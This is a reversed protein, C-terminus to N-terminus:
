AVAFVVRAIGADILAQTCPGSRGVHKCPELTVFATAGRARAGAAALAVVEAHAEGPCAHYGEGVTEGDPDVIVCGVIPNPSTSGLGLEALEIARRM